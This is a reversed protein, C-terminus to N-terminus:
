CLDKHLHRKRPSQKKIVEYNRYFSVDNKRPLKVWIDLTVSMNLEEGAVGVCGGSSDCKFQECVACVAFTEGSPASDPLGVCM